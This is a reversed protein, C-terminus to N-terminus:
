YKTVGNRTVLKNILEDLKKLNNKKKQYEKWHKLVEYM